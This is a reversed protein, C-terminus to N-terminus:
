NGVLTVTLGESDIFTRFGTVKHKYTVRDGGAEFPLVIELELEAQLLHEVTLGHGIMQGLKFM